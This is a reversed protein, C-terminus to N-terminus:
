GGARPSKRLAFLAVGTLVVLVVLAEPRAAFLMPNSVTVVTEDLLPWALINAVGHALFAPWFSGTLERWVGYIVAMVTTALLFLPVFAAMPLATYDPIAFVYGVHWLGWIIGVAVFRRIGVVGLAALKPELYGRWAFEESFAYILIPLAGGLALVLLKGGWGSQFQAAGFVAGLGLAVGFALPFLLLALLYVRGNGILGLRFGSDTWGDGAFLRLVLTVLLPSLIFILGGLGDIAYYNLGAINGIILVAVTFIVVNRWSAKQTQESM